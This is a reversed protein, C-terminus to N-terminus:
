NNRNRVIQVTANNCIDHSVSLKPTVKSTDTKQSTSGFMSLDNVHNVYYDLHDIMKCSMCNKRVFRKRGGKFKKKKDIERM